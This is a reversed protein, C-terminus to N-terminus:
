VKNEKTNNLLHTAYDPASAKERDALTARVPEQWLEPLDAPDNFYGAATPEANQAVPLLQPTTGCRRCWRPQQKKVLLARAQGPHGGPCPPREEGAPDAAAPNIPEVILLMKGGAGILHLHCPKEPDAARRNYAILLDDAARQNLRYTEGQWAVQEGRQPPDAPAPARRAAALAQIARAYEAPDAAKLATLAKM